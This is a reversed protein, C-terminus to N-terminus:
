ISLHNLFTVEEGRAEHWVKYQYMWDVGQKISPFTQTHETESLEGDMDRVIVLCRAPAKLWIPNSITLQKM